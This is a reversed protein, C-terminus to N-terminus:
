GREVFMEVYQGAIGSELFVGCTSHTGTAAVNKFKGNDDIVAKKGATAEGSLLVKVLGSVVVGLQENAKKDGKGNEFHYVGIFDGSGVKVSNDNSGAVVGCGLKIDTDAKYSRVYLM